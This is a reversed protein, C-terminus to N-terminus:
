RPFALPVHDADGDRVAVIVRVGDEVLEGRAQTSIRGVLFGSAYSGSNVWNGSGDLKWAELKCVATYPYYTPRLFDRSEGDFITSHVSGEETFVVSRAKGVPDGIMGKAHLRALADWDFGKWARGHDHLGLHLLALVADDIKDTDVDSDRM